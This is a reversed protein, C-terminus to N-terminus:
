SYFQYQGVKVVEIGNVSISLSLSNKRMREKRLSSHNVFTFSMTFIITYCPFSFFRFPIIIIRNYKDIPTAIKTTVPITEVNISLKSIKMYAEAVTPKQKINTPNINTPIKKGLSRIRSVFLHSGVLSVFLRNRINKNHMVIPNGFRIVDIIM